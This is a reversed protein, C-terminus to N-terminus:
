RLHHLLHEREDDTFPRATQTSSDFGVLTAENMFMPAAPDGVLTNITFSGRGVRSIWSHAAYPEPGWELPVIGQVSITGIVFQGLRHREMRSAFHLVRAEQAVRFQGSLSVAGTADLDTTRVRAEVPEVDLEPVQPQAPAGYTTVIRAHVAPEADATTCVEQTLVDGALSSRVLLPRASLPTPRLYTVTVDQVGRGASLHGDRRLVAQAEDVYDLYVVNTVHDLSDLDAWRIPLEHTWIEPM